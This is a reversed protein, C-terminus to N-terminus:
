VHVQPNVFDQMYDTARRIYESPDDDWLEQDEDNFCLVPFVIRCLLTELNPKLVKYTLSKEASYEIFKLSYQTIRRPLYGGNVRTSLLNFIVTVFQPAVNAM